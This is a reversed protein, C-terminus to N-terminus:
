RDVGQAREKTQGLFPAVVGYPDVVDGVAQVDRTVVQGLDQVNEGPLPHESRSPSRSAAKPERDRRAVESERVDYAVEVVHGVARLAEESPLTTEFGIRTRRV